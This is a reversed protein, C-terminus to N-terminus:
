RIMEEFIEDKKTNMRNEVKEEIKEVKRKVQAIDDENKKSAEELRKLKERLWHNMGQAYM